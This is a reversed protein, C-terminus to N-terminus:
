IYNITQTIGMPKPLVNGLFECVAGVNHYPEEFNYDITSDLNDIIDISGGFLTYLSEKIVKLSTYYNNYMIRLNILAKMEFDSLTYTANSAYRKFLNGNLSSSYRNFGNGGGFAYRAFSWFTHALDLGYINRPVGVIRGIITLQAGFASDLDWADRLQQPLDDCLSNNVLCKITAIAKPKSGYQIILLGAYYNKLEEFTM